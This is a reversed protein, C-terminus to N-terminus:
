LILNNLSLDIFFLNQNFFTFNLVDSGYLHYYFSLCNTTNTSNSNILPSILRGQEGELNTKPQLIAYYGNGSVDKSPGTNYSSKGKQTIWKM